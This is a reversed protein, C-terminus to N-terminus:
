VWVAWIGFFSFAWYNLRPLVTAYTVINYKYGMMPLCLFISASSFTRLFMQPLNSASWIVFRQLNSSRFLPCLRSSDIVHTILQTMLHILLNSWDELFGFSRPDRCLTCCRLFMLLLIKTRPHWSSASSIMCKSFPISDSYVEMAKKLFHLVHELKTHTSVDTMSSIWNERHYCTENLEM